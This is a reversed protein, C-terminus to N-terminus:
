APARDGTRGTRNRRAGWFIAGAITLLSIGGGWRVSRPDYTLDVVHVGPELRIGLFAHNARRIPIREGDSRAHWGHWAVQSIVVWGPEQMEAHLRLHAMGPTTIRVAGPGNVIEGPAAGGSPHAIWARQAFDTEAMMEELAQGEPINIRIRPPVYARPLVRENEFLTMGETVAAMRWGPPTEVGPEAIAWRVNLFSLFPRTLDGVRNFSVPQDISFLPITQWFAFHTMAQYGRVDQLGYMSATQPIITFNVGVIRDEAGEQRMRDLGEFEPYFARRPVTPYEDGIELARQTLLLLFLAVFARRPIAVFALVAAALALPVLWYAGQRVLFPVSLGGDRMAPWLIALLIAAAAFAGAHLRKMERGRTQDLWVEVGFASLAALAFLTGAIFRTNLAIDFLPLSAILDAIVPFDSGALWGFVALGALLWREKRRSWALGAIALPYVLSGAYGTVPLPHFPPDVVMEERAWGWRFPVVNAVLYAAAIEPPQARKQHAFFTTRTFHQITQPLAEVVPLLFVATATLALFGGLAARMVVRVPRPPRVTALEWIGYIVGLAVLHLVSEPHGALIAMALSIALLAVSEGDSRRVLRRVALFVLPLWRFTAGLPWELFFVLFDGFMWAAAGFLAAETRCDLDRLWCFMWLAGLLLTVSALFTLGNALPILLSLLFFPDYPAAQATGALLDGAFLYPNWLPLEGSLWAERAVKKWPVIQTYIDALTGNFRETIGMETRMAALPAAMYPLDAPAYVGGTLLARGTFLLPLAALLIATKRHIPILFRSALALLAAATAAYLLVAGAGGLVITLM